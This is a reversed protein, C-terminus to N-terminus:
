ATCKIVCRPDIVAPVGRESAKFRLAVDQMLDAEGGVACTVTIPWNEMYAFAKRFNGIFWMKEPNTIGNQTKLRQYGLDSSIVKYDVPLDKFLQYATYRKPPMLLVTNPEVLLPNSTYPMNSFLNEAAEINEWGLLENGTLLNKFPHSSAASYTDWFIGDLKFTNTIGLIMDLIRREKNLALLEGVQAAAALVQHTQDFFVAEKTVPILLGHKATGPTEVWGAHITAARYTSGTAVILNNDTSLELTCVKEGDLRTPITRVLQSAAFVRQSYAGKIVQTLLAGMTNVFPISHTIPSNAQEVQELGGPVLSEALGRLSFDDPKLDGQLLADALHKATNEAGNLEVQRQLETTKITM